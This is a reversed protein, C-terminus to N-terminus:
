CKSQVLHIQRTNVWDMMTEVAPANIGRRVPPLQPELSTQSYRTAGPRKFSSVPARSKAVPMSALTEDRGKQSM